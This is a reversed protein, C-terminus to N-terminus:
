ASSIAAITTVGAVNERQFWLEDAAKLRLSISRSQPSQFAVLFVNELAIVELLSKLLRIVGEWPPSPM